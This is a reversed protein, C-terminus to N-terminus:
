RLVPSTTSATQALTAQLGEILQAKEQDSLKAEPHMLTYYWPPMEGSQIVEAIDHISAYNRNWDSFNLRTRGDNVDHATLWSVPAIQSYWPWETENSHCAYCADVALTRTQSSNWTPEDVVAPNTRSVPILQIAGFAIIAVVSGIVLSKIWNKRM